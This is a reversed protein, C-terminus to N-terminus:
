QYAITLFWMSKKKRRGPKTKQLHNHRVVLFDFVDFINPHTSSLKIRCDGLAIDIHGVHDLWVNEILRTKVKCNGLKIAELM